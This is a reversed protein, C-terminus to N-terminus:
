IAVGAVFALLSIIGCMFNLTVIWKDWFNSYASEPATATYSYSVLLALMMATIAILFSSLGLRIAHLSIIFNTQASANGIFTLVALIGGGNLLLISRLYALGLSTGRELRSIEESPNSM